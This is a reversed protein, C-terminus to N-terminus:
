IHTTRRVDELSVGEVPLTLLSSVGNSVVTFVLDRPTLGRAIDLIRRCGEVCGEDPVPHAGFTVHIRECLLPSGQKDIVEGGTLHEGLADELARAVRQIGKGAGLVYIRGVEDLDYVQEVAYPAGEPLFDSHGVILRNGQVRVCTRTSPYPDAARLGAELIQVMAERGSQNGHSSLESPNLIRQSLSESM